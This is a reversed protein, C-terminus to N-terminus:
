VIGDSGIGLKKQLAFTTRQFDHEMKRMMEIEREFKVVSQPKTIDIKMPPGIDPDVDNDETALLDEYDEFSVAMKDESQLPKVATTGNQVLAVKSGKLKTDTQKKTASSPRSNASKTGSVPRTTEYKLPREPQKPNSLVASM